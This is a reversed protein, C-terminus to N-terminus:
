IQIATIVTNFRIRNRIIVPYEANFPPEPNKCAGVIVAVPPPPEPNEAIAVMPFTGIEDVNVM